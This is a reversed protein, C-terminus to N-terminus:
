AEPVCVEATGGGVPALARCAWGDPCDAARTCREFCTQLAGDFGLCAGSVGRVDIPCDVDSRCSQETCISGVADGTTGPFVIEVCTSRDGECQQGRECPDYDPIGRSPCGGLLAGMVGLALVLSVTRLPRPASIASAARM